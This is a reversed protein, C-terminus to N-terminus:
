YHSRVQYVKSLPVEFLKDGQRLRIQDVGIHCVVEAWQVDDEDYFSSANAVFRVKSGTAHRRRLSQIQELLKQEQDALEELSYSIQHEHPLACIIDPSGVEYNLVCKPTGKCEPCSVIM